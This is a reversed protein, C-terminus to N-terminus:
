QLKRANVFQKQRLEDVFTRTFSEKKEYEKQFISLVGKQDLESISNNYLRMFEQIYAAASPYRELNADNNLFSSPERFVEQFLKKYEESDGSLSKAGGSTKADLLKPSPETNNASEIIMPLRISKIYESKMSGIDTVLYEGKWLGDKIEIVDPIVVDGKLEEVMVKPGYADGLGEDGRGVVIPCSAGYACMSGFEDKLVPIISIRYAVGKVLLLINHGRNGGRVIQVDENRVSEKIIEKQHNKLLTKWENQKKVYDFDTKEFARQSITANDPIKNKEKMNLGGFAGDEILRLRQPLFFSQVMSNAFVDKKIERISEPIKIEVLGSQMFAAQGIEKIGEPLEVHRLSMCNYFADDGISKLNAGLVVKNIRYCNEFCGRGIFRISEPLSVTEIKYCNKFAEKGISTLGEGIIVQVLDFCYAFARDNIRKITTPIEISRLKSEEFVQEAIETLNGVPIIIKKISSNRFAEKGITEISAPLEVSELYKSEAFAKEDIGIVKYADAYQDNSEKVVNPIKIDDEYEGVEPKAVSVTGYTSAEDADTIVRYRIDNAEFYRQASISSCMFSALLYFAFRKKM